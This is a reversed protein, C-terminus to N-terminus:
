RVVELTTGASAAAQLLADIKGAAVEVGRSDIVPVGELGSDFADVPWSTRVIAKGKHEATLLEGAKAEPGPHSDTRAIVTGALTAAGPATTNMPAAQPPAPAESPKSDSEAM